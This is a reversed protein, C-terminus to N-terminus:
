LKSCSLDHVINLSDHVKTEKNALTLKDEPGRNGGDTDDHNFVKGLYRVTDANYQFPFLQHTHWMLDQDYYPVIFTGDLIKRLFLFKKYRLLGGKLFEPNRHHPLSVNYYFTKQRTTALTVDYELSSTFDRPPMDETNLLDVLFPEDPYAEEWLQRTNERAKKRQAPSCLKHNIECGVQKLCDKKYIVPALLHAHWMWHVDIPPAYRAYDEQHAAALPLWLKEYRCRLIMQCRLTTVIINIIPNFLWCYVKFLVWRYLSNAIVTMGRLAVIHDIEKLFDMHDIASKIFEEDSFSIAGEVAELTFPPRAATKEEGESM